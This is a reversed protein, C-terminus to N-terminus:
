KVEGNRNVVFNFLVVTDDACTVSMSYTDYDFKYAIIEWEAYKYGGRDRCELEAQDHHFKSFHNNPTDCGILALTILTLTLALRM